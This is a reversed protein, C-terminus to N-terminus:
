NNMLYQQIMEAIQPNNAYGVMDSLTMGEMTKIYPNAGAELLMKVFEVQRYATAMM